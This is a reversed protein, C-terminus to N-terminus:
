WEIEILPGVLKLQIGLPGQQAKLCFSFMSQFGSAQWISMSCQSYYAKVKIHLSVQLKLFPEALLKLLELIFRIM